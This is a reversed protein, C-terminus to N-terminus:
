KEKRLAEIQEHTLGTAKIITENDLGLAILNRAIELTKEILAGQRGKKVGKEEATSLAAQWDNKEKWSQEYEMIEQPKYQAIECEQFLKLFVGERIEEPIKDLRHMNKFVYLWRDLNGSLASFNKDFKPMEIYVFSLKDYFVTQTAQEILKVRSIVQEPYQNDFVFDMISISYVPRLEYNWEGKKGQEQLPFTAYYLSRDKFYSQEARQLEIIFKEGQDNECYLDFVAKRDKNQKGLQEANLYNLDTIQANEAALLNNLFDILLDKNRETGFIRKFGFDTFLNIYCGLHPGPM